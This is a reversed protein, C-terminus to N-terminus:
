EWSASVVIRVILLITSLLVASGALVAALWARQQPIVMAVGLAFTFLIALWYFGERRTTFITHISLTKEVAFFPRGDCKVPM